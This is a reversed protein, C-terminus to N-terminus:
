ISNLTWPGNPPTQPMQVQSSDPRVRSSEIVGAKLNDWGLPQVVSIVTLTGGAILSLVPLSFLMRAKPYAAMVLCCAPMTVAGIVFAWAGVALLPSSPLDRVTLYYFLNIAGLGFLSIHALRCMRRKFSAYGGLWNENHFFLGLILGSLFGLLIGCWAAVLNLEVIHAKM